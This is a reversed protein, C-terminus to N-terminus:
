KSIDSVAGIQIESLCDSISQLIQIWKMGQKIWAVLSAFNTLDHTEHSM